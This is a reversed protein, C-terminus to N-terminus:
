FPNQALWVKRGLYVCSLKREEEGLILVFEFLENDTLTLVFMYTTNLQVTPFLKFKHPFPPFTQTKQTANIQPSFNPQSLVGKLMSSDKVMKAYSLHQFNVETFGINLLGWILCVGEIFRVSAQNGFNTHTNIVHLYFLTLLQSNNLM